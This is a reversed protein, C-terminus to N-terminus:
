PLSTALQCASAGVGPWSLSVGGYDSLSISSRM